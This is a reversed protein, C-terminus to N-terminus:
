ASPPPPPLRSSRSGTCTGAPRCRLLLRHRTLPYQVQVCVCADLSRRARLLVAAAAAPRAVTRMDTDGTCGRCMGKHEPYGQGGARVGTSGAQRGAQRGQCLTQAPRRAPPTHCQTWPNESPLRPPTQPCGSASLMGPPHTPRASSPWSCTGKCFCPVIPASTVNYLRASQAASAGLLGDGM